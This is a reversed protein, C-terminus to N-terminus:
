PKPSASQPANNPNGSSVPAGSSASTPNVTSTQGNFQVGGNQSTAVNGWPNLVLRLNAVDQILTSVLYNPVAIEVAGGSGTGTGPKNPNGQNDLTGIIRYTGNGGLPTGKNDYINVTDGISLYGTTGVASPMWFAVFGQPLNKITTIKSPDSVMAHIIPESKVADVLLHQDVLDSIKTYSGAPPEGKTTQLAFDDATLAIGPSLHDKVAVVYQSTKTAFMSTSIVNIALFLLGGIISLGVSKAKINANFLRAM